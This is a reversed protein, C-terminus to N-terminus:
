QRTRCTPDACWVTISNVAIFPGGLILVYKQTDAVSFLGNHTGSVCTPTGSATYTVDAGTQHANDLWSERLGTGSNLAMPYVLRGYTHLSTNQNSGYTMCSALSIHTPAISAWQHMNSTPGSTDVVELADEEVFPDAGTLFLTLPMMWFSTHPNGEASSNYSGVIEVYFGKGGDFVDGCWITSSSGYISLLSANDTNTSALLGMGSGNISMNGPPTPTDGIFANPYAVKTFWRYGSSCSGTNNIDVQNLNPFSIFYACTNFGRTSAGAPVSGQGVCVPAAGHVWAPSKSAAVLGLLCALVALTTIKRIFM